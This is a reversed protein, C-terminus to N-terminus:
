FDNRFRCYGSEFEFSVWNLWFQRLISESIIANVWFQNWIFWMQIWMVLESDVSDGRHTLQLQTKLIATDTNNTQIPYERLYYEDVLKGEKKAKAMALGFVLEWRGVIRRISKPHAISIFINSGFVWNLFTLKLLFQLSSKILSKSFNCIM